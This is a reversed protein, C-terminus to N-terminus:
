PLAKLKKMLSHMTKLSEEAEALLDRAECQKQHVQLHAMEMAGLLAARETEFYFGDLYVEKADVFLAPNEPCWGQGYEKETGWVQKTFTEGNLEYYVWRQIRVDSYVVRPIQIESM